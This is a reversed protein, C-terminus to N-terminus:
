LSSWGSQFDTSDSNSITVGLATGAAVEKFYIRTDTSSTGFARNGSLHKTAAAFATDGYKVSLSVNTSLKGLSKSDGTIAGGATINAPNAAFAASAILLMLSTLAIIRKM